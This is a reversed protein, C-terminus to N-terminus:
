EQRRYAATLQHCKVAVANGMDDSDRIQLEQGLDDMHIGNVHLKEATLVDELSIGSKQGFGPTNLCAGNARVFGGDEESALTFRIKFLRTVVIRAEIRVVKRVIRGVECRWRWVRLSKIGEIICVWFICVVFFMSNIRAHVRHGECWIM